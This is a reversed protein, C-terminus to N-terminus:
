RWGGASGPAAGRTPPLSSPGVGRTRWPRSRLPPSCRQRAPRRAKHCLQGGHGGRPRPTRSSLQATSQKKCCRATRRRQEM